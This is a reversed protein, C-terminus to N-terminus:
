STTTLPAEANEITTTLRRSYPDEPRFSGVVIM